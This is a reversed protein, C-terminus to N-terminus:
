LINEDISVLVWDYDKTNYTSHCYPCVGTNNTDVPAGCSPCKRSIGETQATKKKRFILTHTKEVRSQDNGSKYKKTTKDIKYDLYRSILCVTIEYYDLEETINKIFSTKVNLEDYMQIANEQKLSELKEILKQYLEDSVKHKVRPLNETTIATLLMIYTNDVKAIFASEKFTNDKKVLEEKTM